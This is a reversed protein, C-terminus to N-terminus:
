EKDGSEGSIKTSSHGKRSSYLNMILVGGSAISGAIIMNIDNVIRGITSVASPVVLPATRALGSLIGHSNLRIQNTLSRFHRALSYRDKDKASCLRRATRGSGRVISVKDELGYILARAEGSDMAKFRIILPNECLIEAGGIRSLLHM